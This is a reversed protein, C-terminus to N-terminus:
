RPAGMQGRLDSDRDVSFLTHRLVGSRQLGKGGLDELRKSQEARHSLDLAGHSVGEVFFEQAVTTGAVPIGLALVRDFASAVLVVIEDSSVPRDTQRTASNWRVWTSFRDRLPVTM